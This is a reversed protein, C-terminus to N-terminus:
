LGVGVWAMPWGTRDRDRSYFPPQGEMTEYLLVGLGYLDVTRGHGSRVSTREDGVFPWSFWGKKHVVGLSVGDKHRNFSFGFPISNRPLARFDSAGMKSPDWPIKAPNGLNSVVM